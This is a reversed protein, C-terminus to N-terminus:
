TLCDTINFMRLLYVAANNSKSRFFLQFAKSFLYRYLNQVRNFKCRM